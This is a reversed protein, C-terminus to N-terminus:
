EQRLAVAADVRSARLAPVVSAALATMALILPATMFTATDLPTVGFLLAELLRSLAAAGVVGIVIGVATMRAGDALVVRLIDATRAGLAVRVGLERTRQHVTFSLVGGIGVAALVVAVTAFVTVLEARFRPRATAEREVEGMTRIRALPLDKDIRAIARKVASVYSLPESATQVVLTSWYWANQAIPVYIELANETEGPELKVQRVVGVIQRQVPTPGHAGMADV